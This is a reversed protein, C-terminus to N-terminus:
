QDPENQENEERPVDPPSPSHSIETTTDVSSCVTYGSESPAQEQQLLSQGLGLQEYDESDRKAAVMKDTAWIRAVNMVFAKYKL